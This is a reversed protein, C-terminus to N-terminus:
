IYYYYHKARETGVINSELRAIGAYVRKRASEM